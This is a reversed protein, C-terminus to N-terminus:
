MEVIIKIDEIQDIARNIPRRNEVYIVDGSDPQIEPNTLSGSTFTVATPTTNDTAYMTV